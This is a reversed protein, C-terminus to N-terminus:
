QASQGTYDGPATADQGEALHLARFILTLVFAVILNLILGWLAAYAPITFGFLHLPYVTGAFHLSAVMWTGVVMGCLWGLALGGRHWWRTYLGLAVAPIIQAIWVGGLLQFQIAYISPLELVFILAGAKVVLSAWKAVRAEEANSCQPRFYERYINRTFLNAAAISMIAAPVLAGIVIAAFAVGSFWAPFSHLILAPVAFNAKYQQFGSAFAPLKDVGAALAMFGLLALLGLVLTYAPLLAM